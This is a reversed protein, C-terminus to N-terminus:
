MVGFFCSVPSAPLRSLEQPIAYGGTTLDDFLEGWRFRLNGETILNPDTSLRSLPVGLIYYNYIVPLIFVNM